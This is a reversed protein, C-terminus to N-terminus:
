RIFTHPRMITVVVTALSGVQAIKTITVTNSDTLAYAYAAGAVTTTPATKFNMIVIPFDSTLDGSPSLGSAGFNHTITGGTDLDTFVVEAVVMNYTGLSPAATNPYKYNTTASM